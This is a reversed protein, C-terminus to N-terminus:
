GALVREMTRHPIGAEMFEVGVPAFGFRAYFPMARTQAHLRLCADGRQQAIEILREVLAAGVGQGRWPALVAMRGLHGDPLLRGCGIPTGAADVALAHISVADFADWELEAPINQEVVFVADRVARLPVEGGSWDVVHLTFPAVADAM